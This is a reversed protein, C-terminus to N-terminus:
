VGGTLQRKVVVHAHRHRLMPSSVAVMNSSASRSSLDKLPESVLGCSGNGNSSSRHPM